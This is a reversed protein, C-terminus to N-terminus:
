CSRGTRRRPGSLSPIGSQTARGYRCAPIGRTATATLIKDLENPDRYARAAPCRNQNVGQRQVLPEAVGLEISVIGSRRSTRSSPLTRDNAKIQTRREHSRHLSSSRRRRRFVLLQLTRVGPHHERASSSTKRATRLVSRHRYQNGDFQDVRQRIREHAFGTLRFGTRYAIRTSEPDGVKWISRSCSMSAAACIM